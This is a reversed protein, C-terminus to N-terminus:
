KRRFVFLNGTKGKGVRMEEDLYSTIWVAENRLFELVPIKLEPLSFPKTAQFSFASFSVNATKKDSDWRWIGDAQVKWEGLLPLEIEACNSTAIQSTDGATLDQWVQKIKIGTWDPLTAFQRTVVTGRSAYILQWSGFLTSQNEFSLPQSIPNIEELQGVIKDIAPEPEPFIAQQLSLVEVRQLLEAKLALRSTDDLAM